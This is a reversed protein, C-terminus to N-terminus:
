DHFSSSSSKSAPIEMSVVVIRSENGGSQKLWCLSSIEHFKVERKREDRSFQSIESLAQAEKANKDSSGGEAETVEYEVFLVRCWECKDFCKISILFPRLFTVSLIQRSLSPSSANTRSALDDKSHVHFMKELRRSLAHRSMTGGFTMIKLYFFIGDM